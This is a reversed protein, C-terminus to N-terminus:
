NTLKSVRVSNFIYAYDESTENITVAICTPHFQRNQDVHGVLLVPYGQYNLKYTADTCLFQDHQKALQLLNRTSVCFRFSKTDKQSANVEYSIIYPKNPDAPETSLQECKYQLQDFNLKTDGIEKKRYKSLFNSIQKPTPLNKYNMKRLNYIITLPATVNIEFLKILEDKLEKRIGRCEIKHQHEHQKDNRFMNVTENTSIYHLFMKAPCKKNLACKYYEKPGRKTYNTKMYSWKNRIAKKAETENNFIMEVLWNSRPKPNDEDISEDPNDNTSADSIEDICHAM